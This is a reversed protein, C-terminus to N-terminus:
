GSLWAGATSPTVRSSAASSVTIGTPGEPQPLLVVRFIILQSTSGVEPCGVMPPSSTVPMLGTASRRVM